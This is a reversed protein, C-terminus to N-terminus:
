HGCRAPGTWSLSSGRRSSTMLIPSRATPSHRIDACESFWSDTDTLLCWRDHGFGGNAVELCMRKLLAPM